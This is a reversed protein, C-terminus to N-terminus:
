KGTLRKLLCLLAYLPMATIERLYYYIWKWKPYDQEGGTTASGTTRWGLLKFTLRCRLMHFPDTVIHASMWNRLRMISLCNVVSQFTTAAKDEIVINKEPVGEQVALEKMVLAEAPPHKGVGGTLIIHSSLGQEFLRAATRVRRTLAPGPGGGRAVGAGFVIMVDPEIIKQSHKM